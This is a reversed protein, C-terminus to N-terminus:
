SVGCAVDSLQGDYARSGLSRTLCRRTGPRPECRASVYCARPWVGGDRVHRFAREWRYIVQAGAPNAGTHVGPLNATGHASEVAGVGALLTWDLGPCSGAAQEYLALMPRPIGATATASPASTGPLGTLSALAFMGLGVLGAAGGALM